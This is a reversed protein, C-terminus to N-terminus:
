ESNKLFLPTDGIVADLMERTLRGTNTNQRSPHYCGLLAVLPGGARLRVRTQAGHAFKPRPSSVSEPDARLACALMTSWAIHGLAVAVRLNPLLALERDLFPACATLEAPTPKNDPPACRASATIYAGHLTLGDDTATAGPQSALGARHLAAYLWNGSDDGTFMRGTRNAGHAAPALGCILVRANPDGFGPVPRGWYTQDRFARRKVRAIEACHTRLRPCCECSVVDHTLRKWSDL